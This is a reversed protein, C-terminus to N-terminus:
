RNLQPSNQSFFFTLEVSSNKVSGLCKMNDCSTLSIFILPLHLKFFKKSFCKPETCRLTNTPPAHKATLSPLPLSHPVSGVPCASHKSSGPTMLNTTDKCQQHYAGGFNNKRSIRTRKPFLSVDARHGSLLGASEKTEFFFKRCKGPSAAYSSTTRSKATLGPM